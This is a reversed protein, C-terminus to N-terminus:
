DGTLCGQADARVTSPDVDLLRLLRTAPGAPDALLEVLLHTTGAYPDGRRFAALSAGRLAGLETRGHAPAAFLAKPQHWGKDPLGDLRREDDAPPLGALARVAASATAGHQALIEGAQNWRHVDPRVPRGDRVLEDHMALVAVLVHAGTVVDHGARVALQRARQEVLLLMPHGYRAGHRRYPRRLAVGTVLRILALRLPEAAGPARHPQVMRLFALEDAATSRPTVPLRRAARRVEEYLTTGPGAPSGAVLTLVRVAAADPVSLLGM